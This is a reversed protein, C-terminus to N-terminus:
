KLTMEGVRRRRLAFVKVACIKGNFHVRSIALLDQDFGFPDAIIENVCEFPFDLDPSRGAASEPRQPADDLRLFLRCRNNFTSLPILWFEVVEYTQLRELFQHVTTHM